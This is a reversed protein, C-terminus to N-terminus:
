DPRTANAKGAYSSSGLRTAGLQIELADCIEDFAISMAEIDQPEFTGGNLDARIPVARM